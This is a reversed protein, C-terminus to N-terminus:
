ILFVGNRYLFGNTVDCELWLLGSNDVLVMRGTVPNFWQGIQGNSTWEIRMTERVRIAASVRGLATLSLASFDIGIAKAVTGAFTHPIWYVSPIVPLQNINNQIGKYLIGGSSVVQGPLFVDTNNWPVPTQLDFCTDVFFIGTTWGCKEGTSSRPQSDFRIGDSYYNYLDAGLRPTLTGGDGRNKFIVMVGAKGQHCADTGCATNVEMGTVNGGNAGDSLIATPNVGFVGCVSDKLGWANIQAGVIPLNGSIRQANCAYGYLVNGNDSSYNVYLGGSIQILRQNMYGDDWVINGYVSQFTFKNTVMGDQGTSQYLKYFWQAWAPDTLPTGPAPPEEQSPYTASPM